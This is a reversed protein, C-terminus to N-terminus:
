HFSQSTVPSFSMIRREKFGCHFLGKELTGPASQKAYDYRLQGAAKYFAREPSTMNGLMGDGLLVLFPQSIARDPMTHRSKHKRIVRIKFSKKVTYVSM